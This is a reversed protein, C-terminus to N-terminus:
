ESSGDKAETQSTTPISEIGRNVRKTERIKKLLQRMDAMEDQM